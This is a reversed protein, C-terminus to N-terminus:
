NNPSFIEIADWDPLTPEQPNVVELCVHDAGAEFHAQIHANIRGASGWSVISDLFSPSGGDNFDNESFGQRLWSNRYNPLQLHRGLATSAAQRATDADTELCVKQQVCLWRDPGLIKRSCATHEPTVSYPLAGQSLEAALAMMRPGLAALVIQPAVDPTILEATDMTELYARMTAVPKGYTHGRVGEVQPIHSVGLGMIFRGAYISNLTDHAQAASHPDRAYINAIGSGIRLSTTHALLHAALSFAEYGIAEPYWLTSYGLNEVREAFNKLNRPAIANLNHWIGLTQGKM